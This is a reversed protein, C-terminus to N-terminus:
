KARVPIWIESVYDPSTVDGKTYMEVDYGSVMEYDSNPLWESYVRQWTEQIAKPMPGVCTFMAWTFAPVEFTEFGEPVETGSKYPDAISYKFVGENMSHCMGFMGCVKENYGKAMFEAWFKPIEQMSTEQNFTRTMALVEFAEKKEIRYDMFHGGELKIKIILPAFSKLTAGERKASNPTVGHFRTFAKSFSEPTEYGYKYAVDIVKVDGQCLELASLSLRRNRIYEGLSMGTLLSFIKQFHFSSLYIHKSIEEPSLDETINKEIYKLAENISSIFDM